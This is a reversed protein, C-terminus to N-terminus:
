ITVHWFQQHATYIALRLRQTDIYDSILATFYYQLWSWIVYHISYTGAAWDGLSYQSPDAVACNYLSVMRITESSCCTANGNHLSHLTVSSPGVSLTFSVYPGMWDLFCLRWTTHRAHDTSQDITSRCPSWQCCAHRGLIVCPVTNKETADCQM